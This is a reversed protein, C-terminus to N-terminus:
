NPTQGQKIDIEPILTVLDNGDILEIPCSDAFALADVTFIGSTVLIGSYAHRATVIGYLERVEKVGVKQRRWHKCQVFNRKGDKVLILDVGGDPGEPTDIVYYGKRRFAEGILQEFQQWSLARISQISTHNYYLRKNRWQRYASTAAALSFVMPVIYQLFTAATKFLQQGVFSGVGKLEKVTAVDM